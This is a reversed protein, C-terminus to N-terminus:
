SSPAELYPITQPGQPLACIRAASGQERLIEPLAAEIDSIPELHAGCVQEDSLYSSKLYVRARMQIQAQVQATWQDHRAYGPSQIMALLEAPGGASALIQKYAGHEPLGDACEAACIIAGGARVVRVAASMGKVAQYLNLDLPYGSNTTIVVDFPEAVARMATQKAFRCAAAHAAFLEGAFVKTIQHDRNITVDLSFHVGTQRAIQRIADHIPNGETIGWTSNPHGILPANHLRFITEFAAMGPAVMKPGGSFGAFFHPEVFGTTIRVDSELWRRNLRIPIGDPTAGASKLTAEDFASHNIVQYRRAVEAGLMEALEEPTNPRHTGTAIIIAIQERPVHALEELLVPLVRASPMPRTIDCVAIAVTHDPRVLQRLPPADLPQRLARRLAEGEDPLGPVYHPEIVTTREDPLNVTLGNRGYALHVQMLM